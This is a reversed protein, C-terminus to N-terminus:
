LTAPMSQGLQTPLISVANRRRGPVDPTPSLWWECIRRSDSSSAAVGRAVTSAVMRPSPKPTSGASVIWMASPSPTTVSAALPVSGRQHCVPRPRM